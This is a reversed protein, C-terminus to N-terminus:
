NRERSNLHASNRYRANQGQGCKQEAKRRDPIDFCTLHFAQDCRPGFAPEVKRISFSTVVAPRLVSPSMKRSSM